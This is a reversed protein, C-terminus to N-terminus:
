EAEKAIPLHLYRFPHKKDTRFDRYIHTTPPRVDRLATYLYDDVVAMEGRVRNTLMELRLGRMYRERRRKGGFVLFRWISLVM